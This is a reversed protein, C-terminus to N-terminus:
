SEVDSDEMIALLGLADAVHNSRTIYEMHPMSDGYAEIMAELAVASKRLLDALEAKTPGEEDLLETFVTANAMGAGLTNYEYFERAEEETMGDRNMYHDIVKSEDLVAHVGSCSCAIGLLCHEFGTPIMAESDRLREYLEERDM